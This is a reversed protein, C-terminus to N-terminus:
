GPVPLRRVATGLLSEYWVTAPSSLVRMSAAHRCAPTAEKLKIEGTGPAHTNELGREEGGRGGRGADMRDWTKICLEIEPFPSGVGPLSSPEM